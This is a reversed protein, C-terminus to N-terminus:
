EDEPFKELIQLLFSHNARLLNNTETETFGDAVQVVRQVFMAQTWRVQPNVQLLKRFRRKYVGWYIEISNLQPSGPPMWHLVFNEELFARTGHVVCRHAAHNDLVLHLKKDTVKAVQEKLMKLYALCDVGNTSDRFIQLCARPLVNSITGYISCALRPGQNVPTEVPFDSYAWAKKFTLFSHLAMEDFFGFPEDNMVVELFRKAFKWRAVDLETRRLLHQRYVMQTARCKIGASLYLKRLKFVSLDLNFDQKILTVREALTKTAWMQLLDKRLLERKIRADMEQLWGRRCKRGDTFEELSCQQKKFSKLVSQVTKNSINFLKAVTTPSQIRRTFNTGSKYVLM